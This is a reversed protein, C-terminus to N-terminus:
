VPFYIATMPMSKLVDLEAAATSRPLRGAIMGLAADGDCGIALQEHHALWAGPLPRAGRSDAYGHPAHAGAPPIPYVGPVRYAATEGFRM